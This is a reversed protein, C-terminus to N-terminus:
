LLHSVKLGPVVLKVVRAGSRPTSLEVAVATRFGDRWLGRLAEARSSRLKWAGVGRPRARKQVNSCALFLAEVEAPWQPVVDERAGHIDTLRSQAAEMFAAGLADRLSRRSAYGAALPMPGREEDFLLAAAMPARLGRGKRKTLDFLLPRLGVQEARKCWRAVLLAHAELEPRPVLHRYVGRKGWGIPLADHLLHREVVEFLAHELAKPYSNPHAGMGNSTWPATAFGLLPSGQPPCYVAWAPVWARRQSFLEVGDVFASPLPDAALAAERTSLESPTVILDGTEEAVDGAAGFRLRAVDVHEAAFLEAAEM